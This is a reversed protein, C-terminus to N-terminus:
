PRAVLGGGLDRGQQSHLMRLPGPDSTRITARKGVGEDVSHINSKPGRNAISKISGGSPM